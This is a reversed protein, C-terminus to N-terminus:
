DSKNALVELPDIGETFPIKKELIDPLWTDRWLSIRFGASFPGIYSVFAASVLADGIVSQM